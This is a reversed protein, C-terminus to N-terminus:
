TWNIAAHCFSRNIRFRGQSVKSHDCSNGELLRFDLSTQATHPNFSYHNVRLGRWFRKEDRSALAVPVAAVSSVSSASLSHDSASSFASGSSTSFFLVLLVLLFLFIHWTQVTSFFCWCFSPSTLTRSLFPRAKLRNCASHPLFLSSSFSSRTSLFVTIWWVYALELHLHRGTEARKAIGAKLKYQHGWIWLSSKM